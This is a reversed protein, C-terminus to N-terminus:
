PTIGPTIGQMRERRALEGLLAEQPIMALLEGFWIVTVRHSDELIAALDYRAMEEPTALREAWTLLSKVRCAATPQGYLEGTGSSFKCYTAVGDVVQTVLRAEHARIVVVGAQIEKTFVNM